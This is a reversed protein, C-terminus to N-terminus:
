YKYVRFYRQPEASIINTFPSTAGPIDLFPGMCNTATQLTFGTPWSYVWQSGHRAISMEPPSGPVLEGTPLIRALYLGNATSRPNHFAIRSLQDSTLGAQGTGCYIQQAGGGNTSGYWNEITLWGFPYWAVDASSAFRIVAPGGTMDIKARGAVNLKGLQLNHGGASLVGAAITFAGRNSISGGGNTFTGALVNINSAVLTGGSLDYTGYNLVFNNSVNFSGGTQTFVPYGELADDGMSAHDANFTGGSILINGGNGLGFSSNLSISGGLQKLTGHAGIFLSSAILQGNTLNYTGEGPYGGYASVYIANTVLHTGGSQGVVGAGHYGIYEDSGFWAGGTLNYQVSSNGGWQCSAASNTGSSQNFVGQLGQLLPTSITGASLQVSGAASNLFSADGLTFANTATTAGGTQSFQGTLSGPGQGVQLSACNLLGSRLNYTGGPRLTLAGQISSVGGSQNLAGPAASGLLMTGARLTGNSLDYEGTQGYGIHATQYFADSSDSQKITGGLYLAGSGGESVRIAAGVMSLASNTQILVSGAVRLPTDLGSYNLLLTNYSNLPAGLFLNNVTLSQSSQNVTQAGIALAKFGSNTLCVLPQNPGPQANMSWYNEEWNGSVTKTWSNASSAPNLMVSLQIQGSAAYYGDVAIAYQVGEVAFFTTRSTGNAGSFLPAAAIRNLNTLNNGTYIALLTYFSSGETSITCPGSRSPTWKWWVSLGGPVDGHAPEGRELTAGANFAIVQVNSGSM